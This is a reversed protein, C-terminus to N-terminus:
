PKDARRARAARERSRKAMTFGVSAVLAAAAVLLLVKLAAVLAVALLVLALLLLVDSARKYGKV